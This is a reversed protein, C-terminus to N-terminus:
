TKLKESYFEYIHKVSKSNSPEEWGIYFEPRKISEYGTGAKIAVITAERLSKFFELHKKIEDRGVVPGHGPVVHEFDLQLMKEFVVMWQDPDTTPDGAWPFIKAFLLDGTFLVKEDPFYAFSSCKTHGGGCYYFEVALNADHIVLKENFTIDPLIIGDKNQQRHNANIKQLIKMLEESGIIISDSFPPLGYTHDWHYHTVLLYKVSKKYKEKILSKMIKAADENPSPDILILYDDFEIVGLNAQKDGKDIISKGIATRTTIKEIKCDIEM